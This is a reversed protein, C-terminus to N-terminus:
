KFQLIKCPPRKRLRSWVCESHSNYNYEQGVTFSSWNSIRITIANPIRIRIFSSPLKGAFGTFSRRLALATVSLPVKQRGYFWCNSLFIQNHFRWFLLTLYKDTLCRRIDYCVPVGLNLREFFQNKPTWKPPGRPIVGWVIDFYKDTLYRSIDSTSDLVCPELGFGLGLGFVCFFDSALALSLRESSLCERPWPCSHELGLGLVLSVLALARWFFFFLDEYFIKLCDGCFFTKWFNKELAGCFKLLEFFLCALKRPSSAEPWPSSRRPWPSWIHGRPSWRQSIDYCVPVRLQAM